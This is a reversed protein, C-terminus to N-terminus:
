KIKQYSKVINNINDSLGNDNKNLHESLSLLSQLVNPSLVKKKEDIKKFLRLIKYYIITTKFRKSINKILIFFRMIGVETSPPAYTDIHFM